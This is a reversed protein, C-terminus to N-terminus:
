CSKGKDSGIKQILLKIESAFGFKSTILFLLLLLIKRRNIQKKMM